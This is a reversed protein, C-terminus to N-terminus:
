QWDPIGPWCRDHWVTDFMEISRGYRPIVHFSMADGDYADFLQLM